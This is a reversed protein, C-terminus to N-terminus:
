KTPMQIDLISCQLTNKSIKKSASSVIFIIRLFLVFGVIAEDQRRTNLRCNKLDPPYNM